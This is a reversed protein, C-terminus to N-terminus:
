EDETTEAVADLAEDVAHSDTKPVPTQIGLAARLDAMSAYITSKNHSDSTYTASQMMDRLDQKTIGAPLTDYVLTMGLMRDSGQPYLWYYMYNKGYQTGEYFVGMADNALVLSINEISAGNDILSSVGKMLEGYPTITSYKVQSDKNAAVDIVQLQMDKQGYTTVYTAQGGVSTQQTTPLKHMTKLVKVIVQKDVPSKYDVTLGKLLSSSPRMSPIVYDAFDSNAEVAMPDGVGYNVSNTINYIIKPNNPFYFNATYTSKVDPIAANIDAYSGYDWTAYAANSKKMLGAGGYIDDPNKAVNVKVVADIDEDKLTHYPKRFYANEKKYAEADGSGFYYSGSETKVFVGSDGGAGERHTAIFNAIGPISVRYDADKRDQVVVTTGLEMMTQVVDADVDTIGYAIPHKSTQWANDKISDSKGPMDASAVMTSTMLVGLVTAVLWQKHNMFKM